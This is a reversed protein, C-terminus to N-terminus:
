GRRVNYKPDFKDFLLLELASIWYDENKDEFSYLLIRTEPSRIIAGWENAVSFRNKDTHSEIRRGFSMNKLARGVYLYETDNIFVYIGIQNAWSDWYKGEWYDQNLIIEKFSMRPNPNIRNIFINVEDTISESITAM